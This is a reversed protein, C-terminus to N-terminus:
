AIQGIVLQPVIIYFLYIRKHLTPYVGEEYLRDEIREIGLTGDICGHM